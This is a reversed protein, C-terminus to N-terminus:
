PMAISGRLFGFGENPGTASVLDPVAVIASGDSEAAVTVPYNVPSFLLAGSGYNIPGISEGSGGGYTPDLTGAFSIL